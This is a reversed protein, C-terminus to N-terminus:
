KANIVSIADQLSKSIDGTYYKNTTEFSAHGAIRQLAIKDIGMNQYLTIGTKRCKQPSLRTIGLDDIVEYYRDLFYRYAVPKGNFTILYESKSKSYFHEILPKIDRYIPIYRDTGAETKCGAIIYNADLHVNFRLTKLLESPRMVTYILIVIMKAWVNTRSAGKLKEIEDATFTRNDPKPKKPLTIFEAYNKDVYDDALAMKYLQSALVKTKQATSYSLGRDEYLEDIIDQIHRSKVDTIKEDAIDAFYAWSTVYMLRTKETNFKKTRMLRDYLEALTPAEFPKPNRDYELLLQEGEKKTAVYGLNTRKPPPGIVRWPKRLKRGKVKYVTGSGNPKKM